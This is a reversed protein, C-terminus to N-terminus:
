TISYQKKFNLLDEQNNINIMSLLEKWSWKSDYKYNEIINSYSQINCNYPIIRIRRMGSCNHCQIKTGPSSFKINLLEFLVKRPTVIPFYTQCLYFLDDFSRYKGTICQVKTCEKDFYTNLGKYVNGYRPISNSDYFIELLQKVNKPRKDVKIYIKSM